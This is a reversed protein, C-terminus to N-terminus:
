EFGLTRGQAMARLLTQDVPRQSRDVEGLVMRLEIGRRKIRM